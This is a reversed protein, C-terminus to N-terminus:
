RPIKPSCPPVPPPNEEFAGIEGAMMGDVAGCEDNDMM